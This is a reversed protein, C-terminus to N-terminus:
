IYKSYKYKYLNNFGNINYVHCNILKRKGYNQKDKVERVTAEGDKFKPYTLRLKDNGEKDKKTKRNLNFHLAALITRYHLYFCNLSNTFM